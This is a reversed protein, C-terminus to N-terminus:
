ARTIRSKDAAGMGVKAECGPSEKVEDDRLLRCSNKWRSIPPISPGISDVTGAMVPALTRRRRELLVTDTPKGEYQLVSGKVLVVLKNWPLNVNV